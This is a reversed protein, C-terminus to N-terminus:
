SLLKVLFLLFISAVTVAEIAMALHTLFKCISAVASLSIIKRYNIHQRAFHFFIL